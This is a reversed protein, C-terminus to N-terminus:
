KKAMRKQYFVLEPDELIYGDCRGTQGSRSSIKALIRGSAFQYDVEPELTRGSQRKELKDAVKVSKGEIDLEQAVDGSKKLGCKVLVITGEVL